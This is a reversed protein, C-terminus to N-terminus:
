LKFSTGYQNQKEAKRVQEFVVDFGVARLPFDGHDRSGGGNGSFPIGASLFTAAGWSTIWFPAMKLPMKWRSLPSHFM